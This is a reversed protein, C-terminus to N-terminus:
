RIKELEFYGAEKNEKLMIAYIKNGIFFNKLIKCKGISLRFFITYLITMIWNIITRL